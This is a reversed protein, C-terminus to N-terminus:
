ELEVRERIFSLLVAARRRGRFLVYKQERTLLVVTTLASYVANGREVVGTRNFNVVEYGDVGSFVLETVTNMGFMPQFM